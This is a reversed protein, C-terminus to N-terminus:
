KQQLYSQDFASVVRVFTNQSHSAFVINLFCFKIETLTAAM